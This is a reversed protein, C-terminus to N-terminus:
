FEHRYDAWLIAALGAAVIPILLVNFKLRLGITRQM